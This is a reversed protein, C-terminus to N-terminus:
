EGLPFLAVDLRDSHDCMPELGDEHNRLYNRNHLINIDLYALNLKFSSILGQLSTTFRVFAIVFM